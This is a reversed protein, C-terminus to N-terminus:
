GDVAPRRSEGCLRRRYTKFACVVLGTRTNVGLKRFLRELHTRVTHTSIALREAIAWDKLNDCVAQLVELERESIGLWSGLSLWEDATFLVEPNLKIPAQEHKSM